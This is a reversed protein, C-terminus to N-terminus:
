FKLIANGRYQDLIDELEQEERVFDARERTMFAHDFDIFSARGDLSCM